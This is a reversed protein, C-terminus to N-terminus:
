SGRSGRTVVLSVAYGKVFHLMAEELMAENTLKEGYLYEFETKNPTLVDTFELLEHCRESYPAPNVITIVQNRKAIKISALVTEFPIEMQVLLVDSTIIKKTFNTLYDPNVLENAGPAVIISNDQPLKLVMALGTFAGEVQRINETSIGETKLNALIKEGFSDTGVAGILQVNAGIRVSSIAQNQGKGGYFYDLQDGLITEGVQPLSKTSIVLDINSSGLITVKNM